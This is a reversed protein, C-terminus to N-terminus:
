KEKYESTHTQRGKQSPGNEVRSGSKETISRLSRIEANALIGVPVLPVNQALVLVQATRFSIRVAESQCPLALEYGFTGAVM